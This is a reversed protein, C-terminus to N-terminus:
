SRGNIRWELEAPPNSPASICTLNLMDGPQYVIISKEIPDLEGGTIRPLASPLEVVTMRNVSEKMHFGRPVPYGGFGGRSNHVITTVECRYMGTSKFSVRKLEVKQPTSETLDIKIGPVRWTQVNGKPMARDHGSGSDKVYYLDDPRHNILPQTSQDPPTYRYFETEEKYWKLSFLYENPDLEYKCLLTANQGRFRFQPVLVAELQLTTCQMVPMNSLSLTVENNQIKSPQFALHNLNDQFITTQQTSNDTPYNYKYREM